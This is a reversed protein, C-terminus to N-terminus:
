SKIEVPFFDGSTNWRLTTSQNFNLYLTKGINLKGPKQYGTDSWRKLVKKKFFNNQVVDINQLNVYITITAFKWKKQLHPASKEIINYFLLTFILYIEKDHRSIHSKAM